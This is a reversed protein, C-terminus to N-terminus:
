GPNCIMSLVSPSSKAAAYRSRPLLLGVPDMTIIKKAIFVTIAYPQLHAFVPRAFVCVVSLLGGIPDDTEDNRGLSHGLRSGYPSHRLVDTRTRTCISSAPKASFTAALRFCLMWLRRLKVTAGSEECRRASVGHCRGQHNRAGLHDKITNRDVTLPNQYLIVLDALKGVELSGKSKEEFYMYACNATM